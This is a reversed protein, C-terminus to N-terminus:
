QGMSVMMNLVPSKACGNKETVEDPPKLHTSANSNPKCSKSPPAAIHHNGSTNSAIPTHDRPITPM